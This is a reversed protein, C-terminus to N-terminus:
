LWGVGHHSIPERKPRRSIGDYHIRKRKSQLGAVVAIGVTIMIIGMESYERQKYAVCNDWEM